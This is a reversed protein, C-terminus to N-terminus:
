GKGFESEHKSRKNVVNDGLYNSGKDHRKGQKGKKDHRKDDGLYYFGKKDHRVTSEVM